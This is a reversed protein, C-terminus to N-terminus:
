DESKKQHMRAEVKARLMHGDVGVEKVLTEAKEFYDDMQAKNDYYYTIAAYVDSLDLDYHQSISTLSENGFIHRQVIVSVKVGKNITRPIGKDDILIHLIPAQM